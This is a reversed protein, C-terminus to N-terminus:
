DRDVTAQAHPVTRTVSPLHCARTRADGFKKEDRLAPGFAVWMSVLWNVLGPPPDVVSVLCM